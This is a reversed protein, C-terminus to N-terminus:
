KPSGVEKIIIIIIVSRFSSWRHILIQCHFIKIPGCSELKLFGVSVIVDVAVDM